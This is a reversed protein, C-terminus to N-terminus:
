RNIPHGHSLRSPEQDGVMRPCTVVSADEDRVENPPGSPCTRRFVGREHHILENGVREHVGRGFRHDLAMNEVGYQMEFHM